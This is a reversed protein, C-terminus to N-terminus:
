GCVRLEERIQVWDGVAELRDVALCEVRYEFGELCEVRFGLRELCHVGCRLMAGEDRLRLCQIGFGM